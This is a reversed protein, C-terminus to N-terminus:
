RFIEKEFDEKAEKRLREAKEKLRKIEDKQTNIHNVIETQIEIPNPIPIKFNAVKQANLNPQASGSALKKFNEVQCQLYYWLFDTNIKNNNIEYLVACAQNTAADIGLKATRGITAGYMALILSEKTYIKASSNKLADSSIKEETDVIINERVEGTKVWPIEGKFYKPKTRDPTGGSGIKCIESIKLLPYKTSIIKTIGLVNFDFDWRSVEKRRILQLRNRENKENKEIEIGLIDFLYTGIGIELVKAQQEALEAKKIKSQYAKVLELQKSINPLPIELSLFDSINVRQRGTSGSSINKIYNFFFSSSITKIFFDPVILENNIDYTPFDNTVVGNDLDQPILGFAGNRADIKSFIFQGKKVFFLKKTGIEKGFVEDRKKVGEGYLKVTIRKYQKNDEINITDRSKELFSGIKVLAYHERFLTNDNIISGVSWNYLKKAFSLEIQRWNVAKGYAAEPESLRNLFKRDQTAM